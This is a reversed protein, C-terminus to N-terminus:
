KVVVDRRQCGFEVGVNGTPDAAFLDCTSKCLSIKSPQTPSDFHWGKGTGTCSEDYDLAEKAGKTPTFSVNVKNLDLELGDPPKPLTVDCSLTSQRIQNIRDLFAKQTKVPDSTDILTLQTQGADSLKKLDALSQTNSSAGIVYVPVTDSYKKIEDAIGDVNDAGDCGFPVGDTLLVMATKAEPHDTNWKKAIPGISQIIAKTPTGFRTPTAPWKSSFKAAAVANGVPTMPVVLGSANQAYSAPQCVNGSNAPFLEMAAEIGTSVPDALFADLAQTIPTWRKAKELTCCAAPTAGTCSQSGNPLCPNDGAAMSFSQDLMFFLYAPKRAADASKAACAGGDDVPQVGGTSGSTGGSTGIGSSGSSGGDGLGGSTGQGDDFKSDDDSGCAQSLAFALCAGSLYLATKM